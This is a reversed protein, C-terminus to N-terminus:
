ADNETLTREAVCNKCINLRTRNLWPRRGKSTDSPGSRIEWTGSPIESAACDSCTVGGCVDCPAPPKAFGRKCVVCIMQWEGTLEKTAICPKCVCVVAHDGWKINLYECLLQESNTNLHHIDKTAGCIVCRV